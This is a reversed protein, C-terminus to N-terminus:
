CGEHPCYGGVEVEGCEGYEGNEDVADYRGDEGRM